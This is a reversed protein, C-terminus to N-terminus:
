VVSKRDGASQIYRNRVLTRKELRDEAYPAGKMCNWFQTEYDPHGTHIRNEAYNM